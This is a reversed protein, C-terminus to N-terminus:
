ITRGGYNKDVAASSDVAPVRQPTKHPLSQMEYAVLYLPDTYEGGYGQRGIYTFDANWIRARYDKRVDQFHCYRSFVVDYDSSQHPVTDEFTSRKDSSDFYLNTSPTQEKCDCCL